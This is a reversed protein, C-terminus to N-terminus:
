GWHNLHLHRVVFEFTPLSKAFLVMVCSAWGDCCIMDKDYSNMMVVM